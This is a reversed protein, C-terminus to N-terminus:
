LPRLTKGSALCYKIPGRCQNEVGLGGGEELINYIVKLQKNHNEMGM